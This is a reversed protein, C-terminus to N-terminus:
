LGVRVPQGLVVDRRGDPKFVSRRRRRSHKTGLRVLRRVSVQIFFRFIGDVRNRWERREAKPQAGRPDRPQVGALRERRRAPDSRPDDRGRARGRRAPSRPPVALRGPRRTEIADLRRRRGAFRRRLSPRLGRSARSRRARRAERPRARRARRRVHVRARGHHCPSQARPSPSPAPAAPPKQRAVQCLSRWELYADPVVSIRFRAITRSPASMASLPVSKEM